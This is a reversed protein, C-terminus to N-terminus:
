LVVVRTLAALVQLSYSLQLPPQREDGQQTAPVVHPLRLENHDPYKAGSRSRVKPSRRCSRTM